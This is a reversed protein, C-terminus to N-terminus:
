IGNTLLIKYLLFGVFVTSIFIIINFEFMSLKCPSAPPKIVTHMIPDSQHENNLNFYEIMNIKNMQNHIETIPMMEVDSLLEQLYKYIEGNKIIYDNVYIEIYVSNKTDLADDTLFHITFLDNIVLESEYNYYDKDDDICDDNDDDENNWYKIDIDNLIPTKQAIMYCFYRELTHITANVNNKNCLQLSKTINGIDTTLEYDDIKNKITMIKLLYFLEVDGIFKLYYNDDIEGKDLIQFNYDNITLTHDNWQAFEFKSWVAFLYDLIITEVILRPDKDFCINQKIYFTEM